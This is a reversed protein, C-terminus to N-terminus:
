YKRIQSVVFKQAISVILIEFRKGILGINHKSCVSNEINSNEMGVKFVINHKRAKNKTTKEKTRAFM